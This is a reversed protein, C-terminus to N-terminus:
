LLSPLYHQSKSTHLHANPCVETMSQIHDTVNTFKRLKLIEKSAERDGGEWRRIGCGQEKKRPQIKVKGSLSDIFLIYAWFVCTSLLFIRLSNRTKNRPSSLVSRTYSPSFLLAYLHLPGMAVCLTRECEWKASVTINVPLIKPPFLLLLDESRGEKLENQSSVEQGQMCVAWCSSPVKMKSLGGQHAILGKKATM